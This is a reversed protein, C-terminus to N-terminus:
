TSHLLYWNLFATGNHQVYDIQVKDGDDGRWFQGDRYWQLQLRLNETATVSAQKVLDSPFPLGPPQFQRSLGLFCCLAETRCAIPTSNRRKRYSPDRVISETLGVLYSRVIKPDVLRRQAAECAAYAMWHSQVDLGYRNQMLGEFVSQLVQSSRGGRALGFLAEGTYYDSHFPRIRGTEFDRKHIFDGSSIQLLAYNELQAIIMDPSQGLFGTDIRNDEAVKKYEHMMLMALGVGGLKIRGRSVLALCPWNNQLWPPRQLKRAIYAVAGSLAAAQDASLDIKLGRVALCMFWVTGCHRLLNYGPGQRVIDDLKHSYVFRGGPQLLKFLHNLSAEAVRRCLDPTIDRSKSAVARSQRDKTTLV